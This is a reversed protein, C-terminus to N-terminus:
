YLVVPVFTEPIVNKYQPMSQGISANIYTPDAIVFRENAVKYADGPIPVNVATSMHDSYKVGVMNVNFLKRTLYAYLAARDECDSANYYLTEEAFMPKERGFQQDDTQYVFAHQVFSLVFNMADSAAKGDMYQKLASAVQVFSENEVPADFYTDYDAQPYTAMFDIINQNYNFPVKYEKKQYTFKLTKSNKAEAFKPLSVIALDLPKVSGPYDQNYTYLSGVGKKNYFDLAYYKKSDLTYNPTAYIIKKSYTLLVVHGDVLGVKVAYGLKNFVFWSFLKAEDKDAFIQTSLNNVLLYVGWDNLGMQSINKKLDSILENYESSAAKDFFSAIGAQTNPYFRAQKIGYPTNFSMMTGFFMFSIDKKLEALPVVVSQKVPSQVQQKQPATVEKVVVPLPMQVVHSQPATVEKVVMPIPTQIVPKQVAMQQKIPSAEQKPAVVVTKDKVQKQLVAQEKKPTTDQIPPVVIPKEVVPKQPVVSQAQVIPKPQTKLELHFTPGLSVPAVYTTKPIEKPKPKEYLSEGAYEKYAKWQEKLYNNFAADREDRYKKFSENQARQYDEFDGGYLLSAGVLLVASFRGFQKFLKQEGDRNNRM